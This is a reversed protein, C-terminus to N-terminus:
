ITTTLTTPLTTTTLSTYSAPTSSTTMLISPIRRLLSRGPGKPRAGLKNRERM